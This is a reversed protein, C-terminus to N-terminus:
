SPIYRSRLDDWNTHSWERAQQRAQNVHSQNVNRPLGDLYEQIELMHKFTLGLVIEEPVGEGILFMGSLKNLADKNRMEASHFLYKLAKTIDKQVGSGNHYMSGLVCLIESDEMILDHSELVLHWYQQVHDVFEFLPVFDEDLVVFLEPLSVLEEKIGGNTTYLRVFSGEGQVVGKTKAQQIENRTSKRLVLHKSTNAIESAAILLSDENWKTRYPLKDTESTINMEEFFFDKMSHATVCFNYFHDAKEGDNNAHYARRSERRM